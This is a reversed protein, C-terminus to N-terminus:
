LLARTMINKIRGRIKLKGMKKKLCKFAAWLAGVVIPIVTLKFSWLKKLKALGLYKDIKKKKLKKNKQQKQKVREYFFDM